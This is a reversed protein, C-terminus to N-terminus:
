PSAPALPLPRQPRYPLATTAAGAPASTEKTLELPLQALRAIARRGATRLYEPHLEFGLGCRGLEEAALIAAGAGAFPDLVTEGVFSYLRIVRRALEPSFTAPHEPDAASPIEWLGNTAAKWYSFDGAGGDLRSQEKQEESVAPRAGPKTLVSINEFVANLMKPNGPYPYSGFLPRGNQSGTHSKMKLWLIEDYLLFGASRAAYTLDWHLPVLTAPQTRATKMNAAQIILKGGPVTAAYLLQWLRTMQELYDAYEQPRGLDAPHSERGYTKYEHYPPSTFTLHISEPPLAAALTLCDGQKIM